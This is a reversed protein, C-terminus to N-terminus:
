NYEWNTNDVSLDLANDSVNCGKLVVRFVKVVSTIQAISELAISWM